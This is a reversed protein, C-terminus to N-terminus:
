FRMKPNDKSLDLLRLNEKSNSRDNIVFVDSPNIDPRHLLEPIDAEPIGELLLAVRGQNFAEQISRGFGIARYFSAAFTIAAPDGIATKMGIVCDVVEMIATAQIRSYCANLVVIRINDNLVRLLEKIAAASVPKPAGNKDVLIIDGKPSGHGSFHIIQPRHENLSQLLDDPRVAWISILDMSDRYESARIKESIARIEEDLRLPNTGTPNAACFLTKIRDM